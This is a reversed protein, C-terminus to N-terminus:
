FGPPLVATNWAPAQAVAKLPKLRKSSMSPPPRPPGGGGSAATTFISYLTDKLFLCQEDLKVLQDTLAAVKAELAVKEGHRKSAEEYVLQPMAHRTM